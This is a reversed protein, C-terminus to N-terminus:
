CRIGLISLISNLYPPFWSYVMGFVIFRALSSFGNIGVTSNLVQGMLTLRPTKPFFHVSRMRLFM